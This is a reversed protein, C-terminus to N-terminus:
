HISSLSSLSISDISQDEQAKQLSDTEFNIQEIAEKYLEDPEIYDFAIGSSELSQAINMLIGELLSKSKNFFIMEKPMAIGNKLLEQFVLNLKDSILAPSALTSLLLNEPGNLCNSLLAKIFDIDDLIVDLREASPVYDKSELMLEAHKKKNELMSKKVILQQNERIKDQVNSAPNFCASFYTKILSATDQSKSIVSQNSKLVFKQLIAALDLIAKDLLEENTTETRKVYYFIKLISKRMFGNLLGANGFDILTTSKNTLDFFINERHLDGHYFNHENQPDLAIKLFRTYLKQMAEYAVLLESPDGRSMINGLPEGQALSMILVDKKRTDRSNNFKKPNGITFIAENHNTYIEKAININKREFDFNIEESIGKITNRLKQKMGKDFVAEKNVLNRLLAKEREFIDEIYEKKIKVVYQTGKYIFLHTQAISAIGLPEMQFKFDSLKREGTVRKIEMKTLKKAISPNMPKSDKLGALVKTIPSNGLVEEQLEQLLKIMVPGSNQFINITLSDLDQSHNKGEIGLFRVDAALEKFIRLRSIIDMYSYYNSVWPLLTKGRQQSLRADRSLTGKFNLIFKKVPVWSNMDFEEICTLFSPISATNGRGSFEGGVLKLLLKNGDLPHSLSPIAFRDRIFNFIEQPIINLNHVKNLDPYRYIAVLVDKRKKFLSVFQQFRDKPINRYISRIESNHKQRLGEFYATWRFIEVAFKFFDEQFEQKTKELSITYSDDRFRSTASAQPTSIFM